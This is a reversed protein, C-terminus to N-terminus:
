YIFVKNPLKVVSYSRIFSQAATVRNLNTGVGCYKNKYETIDLYQYLFPALYNKAVPIQDYIM